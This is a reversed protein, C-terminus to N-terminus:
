SRPSGENESTAADPAVPESTVAQSTASAGPGPHAAVSQQMLRLIRELKRADIALSPDASKEQTAGPRPSIEPQTLDYQPPNKTLAPETETSEALAALFFRALALRSDEGSEASRSLERALPVFIKVAEPDANKLLWELERRNTDGESRRGDASTSNREAVRSVFKALSM